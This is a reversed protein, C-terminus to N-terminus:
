MGRYSIRKGKFYDIKNELRRNKDLEKNYLQKVEELEKNYLQKVEELEKNYLQKVEELEKNYEDVCRKASLAAITAGLLVSFM